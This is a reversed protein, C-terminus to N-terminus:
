VTQSSHFFLQSGARVSAAYTTFSRGPLGVGAGSPMTLGNAGATKSRGGSNAEVNIVHSYWEIESMSALWLAPFSVSSSWALNIACAYAIHWIQSVTSSQGCLGAPLMLMRCDQRAM